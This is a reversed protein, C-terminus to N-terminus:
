VCAIPTSCAVCVYACVGFQENAYVSIFAALPLLSIVNAVKLQIFKEFLAKVLLFNQHVLLLIHVFRTLEKHSFLM